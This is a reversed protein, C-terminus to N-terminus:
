AARVVGCVTAGLMPLEERAGEDLFQQQSDLVEYFRCLLKRSALSMADNGSGDQYTTILHLAYPALHRTAASKAKLKPWQGQTRLRGLSM